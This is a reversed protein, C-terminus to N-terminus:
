AKSDTKTESEDDFFEKELLDTVTEIKTTIYLIECPNIQSEEKILRKVSDFKPYQKARDFSTCWRGYGRAFELVSKSDDIKRTRRVVYYKRTEM